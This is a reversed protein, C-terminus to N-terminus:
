DDGVRRKRKLVNIHGHSVGYAKALRSSPLDSRCIEAIEKETLRSNNNATGNRQSPRQNQAQEIRTAWKCNEPSYPGNNDIRELTHKPTPREGMDEAFKSFDDWRDCVYIGRGGYNKYAPKNPNRCRQRMNKWIGYIPSDRRRTGDLPTRGSRGVCGCSITLGSSLSNGVIVRSQGCDCQCHWRMHGHKSGAMGGVTLKGFRQGTLINIPKGM